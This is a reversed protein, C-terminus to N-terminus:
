GLVGTTPAVPPKKGSYKGLESLDSICELVREQGRSNLNRFRNLLIYEDRNQAISDPRPELGLLIDSTTNLVTAISILVSISPERQDSEYRSIMTPCMDIAEALAKQSIKARKRHHAIRKGLSDM